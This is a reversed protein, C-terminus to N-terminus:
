EWPMPEENAVQAVDPVFCGSKPEWTFFYKLVM